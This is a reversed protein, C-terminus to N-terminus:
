SKGFASDLTKEMSARALAANEEGTRDYRTKIVVEYAKPLGAFGHTYGLNFFDTHNGFGTGEQFIYMSHHDKLLQDEYGHDYGSVYREHDTMNKYEESEGRKPADNLNM